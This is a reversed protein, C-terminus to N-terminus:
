IGMLWHAPDLKKRETESIKWIEIHAESSNEGSVDLAHGIVSGVNVEQGKRVTVDQLKTYVSRYAGHKVVVVKGEGPILLISSVTGNFIAKIPANRETSFNIGDNNIYVGRVYPHAQKGFKRTVIGKTVPWPLKGKNSEFNASLATAEPSLTFKGSASKKRNEKIELAILRDIERAIQAKRAEQEKLQKRLKSTQSRIQKLSEDKYQKDSVLKGKEALQSNLLIQKEDKKSDLIALDSQIEEKKAEIKYSQNRRYVAMQRLYNIRKYAQNFTEAAFVFMMKNYANRTRHSHRILAAYGDKLEELQEEKLKLSDEKQQILQDLKNVEAAITAILDTRFDIQRDLIVLESEQKKASNQNKNILKSTLNIKENLQQRQQELQKKDQGFVFCNIALAAFICLTKNLSLASM